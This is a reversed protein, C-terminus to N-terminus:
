RKLGEVRRKADEIIEEKYRGVARLNDLKMLAKDREILEREYLRLLINIATTFKIRLVKCANIANKDDTAVIEFGKDICLLLAEAEGLGLKFNDILKKLQDKKEEADYVTIKKEEIRKEILLADFRRNVCNEVQVAKPISVSGEFDDLFLDLLEKKALLILTSSDFVIM